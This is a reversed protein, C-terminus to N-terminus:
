DAALPLRETLGLLGLTRRVSPRAHHLEVEGFRHAIRLLLAVGSSDMFELQGLDVVAREASRAMLADLDGDLREITGVDLEGGIAVRLGGSGDEAVSLTAEAAPQDLDPM